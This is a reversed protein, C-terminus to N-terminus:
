VHRTVHVRVSQDGVEGGLKRRGGYGVSGSVAKEVLPYEDGKKWKVADTKRVKEPLPPERKLSEINMNQTVKCLPQKPISLSPQISRYVAAAPPVVAMNQMVPSGARPSEGKAVRGMPMVKPLTSIGGIELMGMDVVPPVQMGSSEFKPGFIAETASGTAGARFVSMAEMNLACVGRLLAKKMDQQARSRHAEADALAHQVRTLDQQLAAIRDEYTASLSTLAREAEVRIGKEVTRRWTVGCVRQWGWLAQKLASQRARHSAVREALHIRRAEEFKSKWASYARLTLKSNALSIMWRGASDIGADRSEVKSKFVSLVSELDRIRATLSSSSEVYRRATEQAAARQKDELLSKSDMFDALVARNLLTTWKNLSAHFRAADADLSPLEEHPMSADSEPENIVYTHTSPLADTPHLSEQALLENFINANSANLKKPSSGALGHKPATSLISPKPTNYYQPPPITTFSHAHISVNTPPQLQKPVVGQEDAGTGVVLNLGAPGGMANARTHLLQHSSAPLFRLGNLADLLTQQVKEQGVKEDLRSALLPSTSGSAHLSNSVQCRPDPPTANLYQTTRTAMRSPSTRSPSFHMLDASPSSSRSPQSPSPSAKM